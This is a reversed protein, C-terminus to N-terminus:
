PAQSIRRQARRATRERMRRQRERYVMSVWGVLLAAYVVLIWWAVDIFFQLLFLPVALLVLVLLVGYQHNTMPEQEFLTKYWPKTSPEQAMAIM